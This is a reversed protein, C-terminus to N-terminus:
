SAARRIGAVADDVRRHLEELQEREAAHEDAAKQLKLIEDSINLAAVIAIRENDLPRKGRAARGVQRMQADLYAAAEVVSRSEGRACAVTFERRMISVKVTEKKADKQEAM